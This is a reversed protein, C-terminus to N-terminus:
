LENNCAWKTFLANDTFNKNHQKVCDSILLMEFEKPLRQAYMIVKEANASEVRRALAGCLAYLVNTKEPVEANMPNLLVEAPDPMERYTRLFGTYESAIAKGILGSYIPFEIESPIGVRRVNSLKELSRPSSFALEKSRPDFDYLAEPRFRIFSIITEDIDNNWAWEIWDDNDLEYDIPLFRSALSTILKNSGAKDEVRNGAGIIVCNEPLNYNGIRRDLTLELLSVQTSNPCNTIEDLFLISPEQEGELPWFEPTLWNVRKEAVNPVPLGRTDVADLYSCRVDYLKRGTDKAVTQVTQSKGIAPPGLLLVPQKAESTVKLIKEIESRKAM